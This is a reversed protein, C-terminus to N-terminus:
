TVDVRRVGSEPPRLSFKRCAKAMLGLSLDVFYSRIPLKGEALYRRVESAFCEEVISRCCEPHVLSSIHPETGAVQSERVARFMNQRYWPEIEVDDWILRRIDDYCTFGCRNFKSQWYSPWQCNVHHEGSQWPCAASFFILSGHRCISEIFLDATLEPLHEAVEFCIVVDFTRGLDFPGTLDRMAINARDAAVSRKDILVGDVGWLERVGAEDAARLWTGTGCGVDLLSKFPGWCGIHRFGARAGEVSHTNAGHHYIVNSKV